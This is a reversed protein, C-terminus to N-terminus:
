HKSTDEGGNEKKDANNQSDQNKAAPPLFSPPNQQLTTSPTGKGSPGIKNDDMTKKMEEIGAERILDNPLSKMKDSAQRLTKWTDSRIFKNLERGITKGTKQIEKPGLIIFAILAILLLELPGIGLFDM